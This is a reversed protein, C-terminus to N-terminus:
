SRAVRASHGSEIRQVQSRSVALDVKTDVLHHSISPEPQGDTLVSVDIIYGPALVSPFVQLREGIIALEPLPIENPTAAANLTEVVPVGFHIEIPKSSDFQVSGIAHKGTSQIKLSCVHPSNIRTGDYSVSFKDHAAALIPAVQVVLVELHRKALSLARRAYIAALVGVALAALGITLTAANFLSSGM